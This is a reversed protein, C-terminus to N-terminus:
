VTKVIKYIERCVYQDNRDYILSNETHLKFQNAPQHPILPLIKYGSNAVIEPFESLKRITKNQRYAPITIVIPAGKELYKTAQKLFRKLLEKSHSFNKNIEKNDPIKKQPPGLYSETVIADITNGAFDEKNIQTADKTFFHTSRKPTEPFQAYLWNLNKKSSEVMKEHLDSGVCNFGMLTAENIITGLGCFPDFITKKEHPRRLDALNLMIQALKPPLMGVKADRAPRNYDRKSYSEFNQYAVTHGMYVTKATKIISFDLGNQLVKEHHLQTCTLNKFDKNIFRSKIKEKSLNKKLFILSNKLLNKSSQAFNYLSLGYILKTDDHNISALFHDRIEDALQPPNGNLDKTIQILKISGGLQDLFTQPNEIPRTLDVILTETQIDVIRGQDKIVHALEAISILHKRGLTFAYLNM